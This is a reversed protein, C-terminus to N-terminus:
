CVHHGLIEGVGARHDVPRDSPRDRHQSCLRVPRNRCQGGVDAQAFPLQPAPELGRDAIAGLPEAPYETKLTQQIQNACRM